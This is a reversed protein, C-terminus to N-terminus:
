VICLYLYICVHMWVPNLVSGAPEELIDTIVCWDRHCRLIGLVQMYKYFSTDSGQLHVAM